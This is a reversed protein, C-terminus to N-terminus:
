RPEDAARGNFYETKSILKGEPDWRKAIGRCNHNKWHSQAKKTGNSWWQTWTSTGDTKHQWQWKKSGNSRWYTETGTKNGDEYKLQWKKQGNRYYWTQKGHLLYRGDNTIKASWTAKIKGDPYKEEYSRVSGIPEPVRASQASDLIWAENMEFHLNPQNM